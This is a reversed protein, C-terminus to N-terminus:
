AWSGRGSKDLPTSAKKGKLCCEVDANLLKRKRYFTAQAPMLFSLFSFNFCGIWCLALPVQPHQKKGFHVFGQPKPLSPLCRLRDLSIRPVAAPPLSHLTVSAPDVAGGKWALARTRIHAGSGMM